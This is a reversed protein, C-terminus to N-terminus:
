FLEDIAHALLTRTGLDIEMQGERVDSEEVRVWVRGENDSRELKVLAGEHRIGARDVISINLQPASVLMSSEYSAVFVGTGVMTTDSLVVHSVTTTTGIQWLGYAAVASLVISIVPTKAMLIRVRRRLREILNADM